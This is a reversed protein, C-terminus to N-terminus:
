TFKDNRAEKMYRVVNIPTINIIVAELGAAAAWVPYWWQLGRSEYHSM